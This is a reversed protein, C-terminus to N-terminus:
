GESCLTFELAKVQRLLNSTRGQIFQYQFTTLIRVLFGDRNQRLLTTVGGLPHFPHSTIPMLSTRPLAHTPKFIMLTLSM